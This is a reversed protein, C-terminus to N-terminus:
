KLLALAAASILPVLLNDDVIESPLAEAAASLLAAIACSSFRFPSALSAAFNAAACAAFGEWSKETGPIRHRGFALGAVTAVSDGLALFAIGWFAADREFIAATALAGITFSLAGKGARAGEREFRELFPRVLGIKRSHLSLFGGLVALSSLLLVSYAKPLLFVPFALLLGYALHFTQRPIEKRLKAAGQRGEEKGKTM